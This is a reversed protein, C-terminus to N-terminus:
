HINLLMWLCCVLLQITIVLVLWHIHTLPCCVLEHSMGTTRRYTIQLKPAIYSALHVWGTTSPSSFSLSRSKLRMLACSSPITTNDIVQVQKNDSVLM